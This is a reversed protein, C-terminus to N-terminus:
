GLLAGEAVAAVEPLDTAPLAFAVTATGALARTTAGAARRLTEADPRGHPGLGTLVVIRAALAGGSPVRVVEDARGTVGLGALSATRDRRLPTTIRKSVTQQNM